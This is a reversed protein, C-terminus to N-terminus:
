GYARREIDRWVPNVIATGIQSLTKNRIAYMISKATQVSINIERTKPLPIEESYRAYEPQYKRKWIRYALGRIAPDLKDDNSPKPKGKPKIEGTAIFEASDDSVNQWILDLSPEIHRYIVEDFIEM